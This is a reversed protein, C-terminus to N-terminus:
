INRNATNTDIVWSVSHTHYNLTILGFINLLRRTDPTRTHVRRGIYVVKCTNCSLKYM